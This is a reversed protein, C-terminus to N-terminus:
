AAEMWERVQYLPAGWNDAPGGLTRTIRFQDGARLFQRQPISLGVFPEASYNPLNQAFTYQDTLSPGQILGFTSITNVGASGGYLVAFVVGRLGATADTSLLAQVTILEWRAGTPCTELIPLAAGPATGTINRIVPEVELSSLIPSGPFGIAQVATVCGALLTGLVVRSPGIGRILQALVYTQGILPAGSQVFLTLRLLVGKGVKYDQTTATRNSAPTHTETIPQPLGTEDLRMGQIGIVVGAVSNLTVIRLQTDDDLVFPSSAGGSMAGFAGLPSAPFVLETM